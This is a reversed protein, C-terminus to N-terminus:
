VARLFLANCCLLSIWTSSPHEDYETV